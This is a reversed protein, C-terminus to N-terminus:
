QHVIDHPLREVVEAVRRKATDPLPLIPRPPESRCIDLLEALAYVVRLSSYEKFLDWVPTLARNLRLAEGINKHAIARVIALCPDPLLGGLVSHWADAGTILAEVSNWDGSYGLSFGEPTARRLARLHAATEQPGGALSKVAVIGPVHSLRSVLEPSFHFHTTSFNDYICIPLRSERAVATFHEFVENDTLPTYSVPALLGAAAGIAKADQALKIADDTRLAGIGAVIPITGCAVEMAVEIAHRREERSLYVYTGTSGLLGISDVKAECLRAILKRLTLEDVQGDTGTPTIPFACLGSPITM